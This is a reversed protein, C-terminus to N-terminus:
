AAIKGAQQFFSTLRATLEDQQSPETYGMLCIQLLNGKILYGSRYSLLFGQEAMADGCTVSSIHDPLQLTLVAPSSQRVPNLITIGATQLSTRLRASNQAIEDFRALSMQALAQRLAAVLNSSHTYPIGANARYVGLDLYRPIQRDPEVEHSYAVIALGPYAAIAKGSVTTALYTGSVDVSVCAVSSTCDVCLKIGLSDCLIQIEKLPNLIGSSTECHTMWLWDPKHQILVQRLAPLYFSDGFEAHFTHFELGFRQAHDCLREGFEGNVLILGRRKLRSIQAAVVDNALTGSGLFIEVERSGMLQCLRAKTDSLLSLFAEARHSVPANAFVAQVAPHIEVPGPLFSVPLNTLAPGENRVLADINQLMRSRQLRQQMRLASELVLYMPQYMAGPKGVLNAFPTFGMNVYLKEQLVTASVLALTFKQKLCTALAFNFLKAFVSTHRYAPEVALLRIECIKHVADPAALPLYQDLNDVKSDLSFPRVARLTLMGVLTDGQLAIFYTNEDHFKDVLRRDANVAHQPIEEVFTRYNLRHIQEFEHSQDAIKFQMTAQKM